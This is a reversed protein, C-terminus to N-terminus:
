VWPVKCIKIQEEKRLLHYSVMLTTVFDGRGKVLLELEYAM